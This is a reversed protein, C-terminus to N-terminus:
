PQCHSQFAVMTDSACRGTCNLSSQVTYCGNARGAIVAFAVIDITTITANTSVVQFAFSNTGFNGSNGTVWYIQGVKVTNGPVHKPSFSFVVNSTQSNLWHYYSGSKADLDELRDANQVLGIVQTQGIFSNVSFGGDNEVVLAASNIQQSPATFFLASTHFTDPSTYRTFTKRYICGTPYALYQFSVPISSARSNSNPAVASCILLVVVGWVLIALLFLVVTCSSSDSHSFCQEDDDDLPKKPDEHSNATKNEIVTFPSSEALGQMEVEAVCQHDDTHQIEKMM